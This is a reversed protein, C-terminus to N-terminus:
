GLRANRPLEPAPAQLAHHAIMLARVGRPRPTREECGIRAFALATRMKRNGADLAVACGSSRLATRAADLTALGDDNSRVVYKTSIFIDREGARTLGVLMETLLSGMVADLDGILDVVIAPRNSVTTENERAQMLNLIRM